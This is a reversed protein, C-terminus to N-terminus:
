KEDSNTVDLLERYQWHGRAGLLNVISNTEEFLEHSKEKLGKQLIQWLADGREPHLVEFGQHEAAARVCALTEEPFRDFLNLIRSFARRGEFRTEGSVFAERMQHLAWLDDFKNSAFWDAFTSWERKTMAPARWTWLHQFKTLIGTDDPPRNGVFKLTMAALEAPANAFFRGVLHDDGLTIEGRAYFIMLHQGLRQGLSTLRDPDLPQLDNIYTAYIPRVVQFTENSLKGERLYAAWLVDRLARSELEEPFLFQMHQKVWDLDIYVLLSLWKGFVARDMRMSSFEGKVHKDLLTFVEPLDARTAKRNDEVLIKAHIWRAYRMVAHLGHGRITNIALSAPGALSQGGYRAEYEANPEPHSALKEILGWLRSRYHLPIRDSDFLCSELFRAVDNTSNRWDPDDHFADLRTATGTDPPVADGAEKLIWECLQIVAEIDPIQEGTLARVFGAVLHGIYTPRLTNDLFKSIENSYKSPDREVDEELARGLGRPSPGHWAETPEYTKLYRIIEEVSKQTVETQAIPSVPGVFSDVGDNEDDEPFQGFRTQLESLTTLLDPPLDNQYAVLKEYLWQDARMKAAEANLEGRNIWDVRITESAEILIRFFADRDVPALFKLRERVLPTHEQTFAPSRLLEPNLIYKKLIEDPAQATKRLLYLVLRRFVSWEAKELRDALREFEDPFRKSILLVCDRVPPILIAILSFTSDDATDEIRPRQIFSPDNPKATGPDRTSFKVASSLLDILLDLTQWPDADTMAPLSEKLIQEYLYFECRTKPTPILAWDPESSPERLSTDPEIALLERLLAFSQSAHSAAIKAALKGLADELLGHMPHRASIWKTERQAWESALDNDLNLAIDCLDRHLFISAFDPLNLIIESIERHSGPDEKSLRRLYSAPIWDRSPRPYKVIEPPLVFAGVKQLHPLWAPKSLQSFFYRMAVSDPAISLTFTRVEKAGPTEIGLLEDLGEIFKFYREEFRLLVVGLVGLYDEWFSLFEADLPRAALNARHARKHLATASDKGALSIWKIAVPDTEPIGLATLIGLIENRHKDDQKKKQEKIDTPLVGLVDRLASEIERLLHGALHTLTTLRRESMLQCADKFFEQSGPGILRLREWIKREQSNFIFERSPAPDLEDVQNSTTM